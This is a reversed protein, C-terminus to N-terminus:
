NKRLTAFRKNFPSARRYYLLTPKIRVAKPVRKSRADRAPTAKPTYM